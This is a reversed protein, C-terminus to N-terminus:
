QQAREKQTEAAQARKYLEARSEIDGSFDKELNIIEEQTLLGTTDFNYIDFYPDMRRIVEKLKAILEIEKQHNKWQTTKQAVKESETKHLM